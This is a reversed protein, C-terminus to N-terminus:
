IRTGTRTLHMPMHACTTTHTQTHTAWASHGVSVQLSLSAGLRSRFVRALALSRFLPGHHWACARVPKYDPDALFHENPICTSLQNHGAHEIKCVDHFEKSPLFKELCADLVAAVGSGKKSLSVTTGNYM